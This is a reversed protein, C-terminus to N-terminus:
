SFIEFEKLIKKQKESIKKPFIIKFKIYMNHRKNNEDYMGYNSIKLLIEEDVTEKIKIKLTTGDITPVELEGGLMAFTFPIEKLYILDRNNLEFFNHKTVLINFYYNDIKLQDGQKIFKPLKFKIKKEKNTVKKGDCNKCKDKIIKGAGQCKECIQQTVFFSNIQNEIVGRGACVECYEYDSNKEKGTGNCIQCTEDEVLVRTIEKEFFIDELTVTVNTTYKVPQNKRKFFDNFNFDFDSHRPNDYENKKQSDKLNEYAETIEKFKEEMKKDGKNKDPHYKVALQRYAKKIEEETANRSLGLIKYYDKM